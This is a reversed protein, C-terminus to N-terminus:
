KKEIYYSHGVDDKFIFSLKKKIWNKTKTLKVDKMSFFYLCDHTVGDRLVEDVAQITDDTIELKYYRKDGIPSFQYSGNSNQQFIVEKISDPFSDSNVRNLITSTINKKSEIDGGTAESETIRQLMELEDSTVEYKYIDEVEKTVKPKEVKLKSVTIGVLERETVIPEYKKSIIEYDVTNYYIENSYQRSEQYMVYPQKSNLHHLCSAVLSTAGIIIIITSLIRKVM